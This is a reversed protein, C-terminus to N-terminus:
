TIATREGQATRLTIIFILKWPLKESIRVAIFRNREFHAKHSELGISTKEGKLGNILFIIFPSRKLMWRSMMNYM